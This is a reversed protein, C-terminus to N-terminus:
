EKNEKMARIAAAADLRSQHYFSGADWFRGNGNTQYVFGDVEVPWGEVVRAVEELAAARIPPAVAELARRLDFGSYYIRGNPELAGRQAAMFGCGANAAAEVMEDTIEVTMM